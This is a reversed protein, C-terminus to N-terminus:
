RNPSYTHGLAACVVNVVVLGVVLLPATMVVGTALTALIVLPLPISAWFAVGSVATRFSDAVASVNTERAPLRPISPDFTSMPNRRDVGEGRIMM